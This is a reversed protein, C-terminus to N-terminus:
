SGCPVSALAMALRIEEERPTDPHRALYERYSAVSARRAGTAAYADGILLLCEDAEPGDPWQVRYAECEKVAVLHRGRRHDMLAEFWAGYSALPGGSSRVRSFSSSALNWNKLEM